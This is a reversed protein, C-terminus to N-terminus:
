AWRSKTSGSCPLRWRRWRRCTEVFAGEPKGHRGSFIEIMDVRYLPLQFCSAIARVSLSKGCGPIGMFLVGKPVIETALSERQQFLKRRELLWKKLTELGGVDDLSGNNTINELVGGRNVLLRKEELAATLGEPGLEPSASLARRLAYRSEDLTLGRLTGALQDLTEGSFRSHPAMRASEERLFSGLEVLDPPRLELYLVSREIEEPLYRVASTIVVFKRRDLCSEYVDRLRRRTEPSDRLPDHFDKLQFIAPGPHADIFDLAARPSQTGPEAAAGDRHM